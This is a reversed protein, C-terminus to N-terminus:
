DITKLSEVIDLRKLMRWAITGSVVFAFMVTGIASMYTFGTIHVPFSFVETNLLNVSARSLLWGIFCGPLLSLAVYLAAEGFFVFYTERLSFGFVQLSALERTRESFNVRAGNYIVGVAILTSFTMLVFVSNMIVKGFTKLLSRYMMTKVTVGAIEPHQKLRLYLSDLRLPDVQLLVLNYSEAEDLWNWMMDVPMVVSQGFVDDIFGSITFERIRSAGELSEVQLKDGHKVGWTRAFYRSILLGEVPQKMQHFSGDSFKRMNSAEPHGAIAVERTHQQFRIRAPLIRMGEVAIVGDLRSIERLVSTPRPRLLDLSIDERQVVQFQTGMLLDVSDRWFGSLVVLSIALAVGLVTMLLRSRRLIANRLVMRARPGIRSTFRGSFAFAQAFKPPAPARMAEAPPLNVAKRISSFAGAFAPILGAIMGLMVSALNLSFDLRPFHYYNRYQNAMWEGLFAGLIIGPLIGLISISSVLKLYYIIIERDFFGVAKLMAIQQRQITVLRSVVINVLFAAVGLFVTPAFIATSKQQSIEDSIFSHSLQRDRGIAGRSGYRELERNLAEIAPKADAGPRLKAVVSNFAGGMGILREFVPRQLWFIGFHKDDPLPSAPSIAYITEPSIGVGSILLELEKGLLQVKLRSGVKLQHAGAFAAHVIAEPLVSDFEPLRGERLHIRNIGLRLDQPLSLFKGVAPETQGNPKVLGTQIIRSEIREIEQISALRSLISEPASKLEAFVDAFGYGEYYDHQARSLSNYASWSAVLLSVGSILLFSLTLGQIKLESLDRLLKKNFARV